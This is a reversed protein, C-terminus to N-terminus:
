FDQEKPLTPEFGALTTKKAFKSATHHESARYDHEPTGELGATFKDPGQWSCLDRTQARSVRSRSTRMLLLYVADNSWAEEGMEM